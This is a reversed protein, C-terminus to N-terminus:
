ITFVKIKFMQNIVYNNVNADLLFKNLPIINSLTVGSTVKFQTVNSM